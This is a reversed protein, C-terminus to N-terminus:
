LGSAALAPRRASRLATSSRKAAPSGSSPADSAAACNVSASLMVSRNAARATRARMGARLAFLREGIEGCVIGAIREHQVLPERQLSGDGFRRRQIADLAQHLM